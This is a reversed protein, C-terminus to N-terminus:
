FKFRYGAELFIGVSHLLPIVAWASSIHVKLFPKLVIGSSHYFEVGGNVFFDLYNYTDIGHDHVGEGIKYKGFGLDTQIFPSLSHHMLFNKKLSFGGAFDVFYRPGFYSKVGPKYQFFVTWGKEFQHQADIFGSGLTFTISNKGSRQTVASLGPGAM